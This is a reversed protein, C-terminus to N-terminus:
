NFPHRNPVGGEYTIYGWINAKRNVRRNNYIDYLIGARLEVAMGLPDNENIVIVMHRCNKEKMKTELENRLM